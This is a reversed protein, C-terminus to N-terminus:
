GAARLAPRARYPKAPILSILGRVFLAFHSRQHIQPLAFNAGLQKCYHDLRENYRNCVAVIRGEGEVIERLRPLLDFNDQHPADVEVFTLTPKEDRCFQLGEEADRTVFVELGEDQLLEVLHNDLANLHGIVLLTDM